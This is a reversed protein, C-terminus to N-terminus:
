EELVRLAERIWENKLRLTPAKLAVRLYKKAKKM